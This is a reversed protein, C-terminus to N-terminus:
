IYKKTGFAIEQRIAEQCYKDAAENGKCMRLAAASLDAKEGRGLHADQHKITIADLVFRADEWECKKTKRAIDLLCDRLVLLLDPNPKKDFKKDSVREWIKTLSLIVYQSDSIVRLKKGGSKLFHQLAFILGLIEGRNNTAKTIGSKTDSTVSGNKWKFKTAPVCGYLVLKEDPFYAAYSAKAGKQGNGSCAGDTYVTMENDKIVPKDPNWEMKWCENIKAFHDCHIFNGMNKSDNNAKNMPSPHGWKLIKIYDGEMICYDLNQAPIGWLVVFVKNGIEPAISTTFLRLFEVTFKMWFKHMCADTSGGNGMVGCEDGIKAIIPTRTLYINLMLIGQKAWNELNGTKPGAAILDQEVLCSYIKKLSAPISGDGSSFCLGHAQKPNPYPDQGIIIVKTDQVEFKKFAEFIHEPAPRLYTGLGNKKVDGLTVGKKRLDNDIENIVRTSAPKLPGLLLKRWSKKVDFIQKLYPTIVHSM